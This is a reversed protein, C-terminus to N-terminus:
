IPWGWENVKINEDSDERNKENGTGPRGARKEWMTNKGPRVNYKNRINAAAEAAAAAASATFSSKHKDEIQEGEEMADGYHEANWAAANFHETRIYETRSARYAMRDFEEYPTKFDRARGSYYSASTTTSGYHNLSRDYKDKESPQSLISYADTIEQFERAAQAKNTASSVDPHKKLALQRFALKVERVSAFRKIQLIKYLDKASM